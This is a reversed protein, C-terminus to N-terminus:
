DVHFCDPDVERSSAPIAAKREKPIEWKAKHMHDNHAEDHSERGTGFIHLCKRNRKQEGWGRRQGPSRTTSMRALETGGRGFQSAGNIFIARAFIHNATM